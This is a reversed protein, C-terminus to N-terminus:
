PVLDRVRWAYEVDPESEPAPSTAFRVAVFGDAEYFARAAVNRRFTFLRLEAPSRERAAAVLARGAGRRRHEEFVALQRIWCGDLALLAARRGDREAVLIECPPVIERAFYRRADDQTHRQHEAVYPYAQVNTEHWRTALEHEDDRRYPRVVLAATV